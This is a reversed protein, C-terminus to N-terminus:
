AQKCHKSPFGPIHPIPSPPAETTIQSCPAASFGLMDATSESCSQIHILSSATCVLGSWVVFFLLLHSVPMQVENIVSCSKLSKSCISQKTTKKKKKQHHHYHLPTYNIDIATTQSHIHKEKARLANRKFLIFDSQPIRKSIFTQFRLFARFWTVIM